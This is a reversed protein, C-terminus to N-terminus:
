QMIALYEKIISEELTNKKMEDPLVNYTYTEIELHQCKLKNRKILSIVHLLETKLAILKGILKDCYIPSMTIFKGIRM